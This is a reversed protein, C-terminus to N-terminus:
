IIPSGYRELKKSPKNNESKARIIPNIEEASPTPPPNIVVGKNINIPISSVKAIPVTKNIIMKVAVDDM